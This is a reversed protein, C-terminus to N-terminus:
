HTLLWVLSQSNHHCFWDIFPLWKLENSRWSLALRTRRYTSAARRRQRILVQLICLYAQIRMISSEKACVSAWFALNRQVKEGVPICIEYMYKTGVKIGNPMSLYCWSMLNLNILVVANLMRRQLINPEWNLPSSCLSCPAWCRSSSAGGNCCRGHPQLHMPLNNHPPYFDYAQLQPPMQGQLRRQQDHLSM